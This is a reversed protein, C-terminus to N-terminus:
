RDPIGDCCSLEPYYGDSNKIDHCNTALMVPKDPALTRVYAKFEKFFHVIEIKRNKDDRLNGAIEGSIYLGYFSKTSKMTHKGMKKM